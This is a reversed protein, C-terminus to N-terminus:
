SKQLQALTQQLATMIDKVEETKPEEVTITEGKMKKALLEEVKESYTDHYENIDFDGKLNDMIKLALELEEKSPEELKQLDKLARPDVVENGYLLTTLILADRYPYILVPYEKTRLTFRGVGAMEKTKFAKLLLSYSDDSKDPALIYSKEYLIRDVQDLPIFKDINIKKNSEPRLADLEEKEFVVFEGKRVEIARGVDSWPVVEQDLTCVREYKLPCADDKRVFKFSFSQDKIMSYLKVPVNVLGISIRGSWISRTSPEASLKSLESAEFIDSNPSTYLQPAHM